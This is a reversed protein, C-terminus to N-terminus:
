RKPSLDDLKSKEFLDLWSDQSLNIIRTGQKKASSKYYKYQEFMRAVFKLTTSIDPWNQGNTANKRSDKEPPYFNTTTKGYDRLITNDCGLLYIESYGMYLLWPLMMIPGTQPQMITKTIDFGGSFKPEMFLYFVERNRFLDNDGVINRTKHGLVIKTELPLKEDAQRLWAVYNELILPKHYPAFFHFKPNIINLDEHLYFNSLSFCDEGKLLKLNEQKLSPGTALLFARKGKAANKWQRNTRFIAKNCFLAFLLHARVNVLARFVAPPFVETGIAELQENQIM